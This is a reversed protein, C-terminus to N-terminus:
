RGVVLMVFSGPVVIPRGAGTGPQYSAAPLYVRGTREDLGLTRAGKQTPVTEVIRGRGKEIAIVALTGDRGSPTFALRRVPDYVVGDAGQGTPLTQVVKQARADILATAGQCAVIVLHDAADYASGTPGECGLKIRGTTKRAALDIVAVEGTTEVNVFAHGAGDVSAEELVGGVEIDGVAKRAKPDILTVTGGAHNMVLVLGSRADFAAADPGKGVPVSAIPAGSMADAFVATDTGGNTVLIEKGGNVPMAIHLRQGPALDATVKHTRTDLAMVSAGRTVFVRNVAPDVRVYDWGGDPGPVKDLVKYGPGEAWAGGACALVAMAAFAATWGRM